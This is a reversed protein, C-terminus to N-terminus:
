FPGSLPVLLYERDELQVPTAYISAPFFEIAAIFVDKDFTIELSGVIGFPSFTLSEAPLLESILGVLQGNARIQINKESVKRGDVWRHVLKGNAISSSNESPFVISLGSFRRTGTVPRGEIEIFQRPTALPPALDLTSTTVSIGPEPFGGLFVRHHITERVLVPLSATVRVWGKVVPAQFVPHGFNFGNITVSATEKMASNSDFVTFTVMVADPNPNFVRFGSWWFDDLLKVPETNVVVPFVAQTRAPNNEARVLPSFYLALIPPVFLIALRPSARDGEARKCAPAAPEPPDSQSSLNRRVSNKLLNLFAKCV